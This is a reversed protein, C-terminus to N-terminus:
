PVFLFELNQIDVDRKDEKHYISQVMGNNIRRTFALGISYGIHYSNRNRVKESEFDPTFYISKVVITDALYVTYNLSCEELAM